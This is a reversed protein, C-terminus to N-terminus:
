ASHWSSMHPLPPIAGGNEIKGSSPHSYDAERGPHKIALSIAGPVWQITTKKREPKRILNKSNKMTGM